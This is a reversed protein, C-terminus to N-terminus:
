TEPPEPLHSTANLVGRPGLKEMFGTRFRLKKEVDSNSVGGSRVQLADLVYNIHVIQGINSSEHNARVQAIRRVELVTLSVNDRASPPRPIVGEPRSTSSPTPQTVDIDRLRTVWNASIHNSHHGLRVDQRLRRTSRIDPYALATTRTYCAYSQFTFRGRAVYISIRAEFETSRGHF